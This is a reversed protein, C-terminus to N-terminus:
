SVSQCGSQWDVHAQRASESAKMVVPFSQRARLQSPRIFKKEETTEGKATHLLVRTYAKRSIPECSSVICPSLTWLTAAAAVTETGKAEIPGFKSSFWRRRRRLENGSSRAPRGSPDGSADAATALSFLWNPCNTANSLADRASRCTRCSGSLTAWSCHHLRSDWIPKDQSHLLFPPLALHFLPRYPLAM